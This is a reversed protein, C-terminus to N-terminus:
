ACPRAKRRETSAISRHGPGLPPITSAPSEFDGAALRAPELGAKPVLSKASDHQTFIVACGVCAAWKGTENMNQGLWDDRPPRSRWPCGRGDNAGYKLVTQAKGGRQDAIPLRVVRDRIIPDIRASKVRITSSFSHQQELLLFTFEHSFDRRKMGLFGARPNIVVVILAGLAVIDLLLVACRASTAVGLAIM